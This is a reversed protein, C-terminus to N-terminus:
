TIVTSVGRVDRRGRLVTSALHSQFPSRDIANLSIGSGSLPFRFAKDASSLVGGEGKELTQSCTTPLHKGVFYPTAWDRAFSKM